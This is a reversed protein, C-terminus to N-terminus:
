WAAISSLTSGISNLSKNHSVRAKALFSELSGFTESDVVDAQLIAQKDEPNGGWGVPPVRDPVIVSLQQGSPDQVMVQTDAGAGGWWQRPKPRVNRAFCTDQLRASAAALVRRVPPLLPPPPPSPPKAAHRAFTTDKLRVSAVARAHNDPRRCCHRHRSQDRM